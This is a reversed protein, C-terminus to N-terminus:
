ATSSMSGDAKQVRSDTHHRSSFLSVLTQSNQNPKRPFYQIFVHAAWNSDDTHCLRLMVRRISPAADVGAKWAKYEETDKEILNTAFVVPDLEDSGSVCLNCDVRMWIKRFMWESYEDQLQHCVQKFPTDARYTLLDISPEEKVSDAININAFTAEDFELIEAYILERIELPLNLLNPAHPIDSAKKSMINHTSKQIEQSLSLVRGM